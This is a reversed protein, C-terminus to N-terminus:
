RSRPSQPADTIVTAGEPPVSVFAWDEFALGLDRTDNQGYDSPKWTRSVQAELMMRSQGPPSQVYETVPAANRLTQDVVLRDRLWIRVRVPRRDLDPHNVWYRLRLYRDTVPFVDIARGASWRFLTNGPQREHDYFGAVYEWGFRLARQPPRLRTWGVYTTGALFLAVLGVVLGPRAWFRRREAGALSSLLRGTPDVLAVYWFVFVIVTLAAATNATPMGVLSVAAVGILAGMIVGAPLRHESTNGSRSTRWFFAALLGLWAIWGLSGVIGMQALQHRYWNQANDPTLYSGNTLSGYDIVLTSFSGLGVGVLPFERIMQTSAEGYHNRNWMEAAFAKVSPWSTSPLTARLRSFGSVQTSPVIAVVLAAAVLVAASGGLVWARATRHRTADVAHWVLFLLAIGATV